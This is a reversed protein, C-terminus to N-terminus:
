GINEDFSGTKIWEEDFYDSEFRRMLKFCHLFKKFIKVFTIRFMATPLFILFLITHDINGDSYHFLKHNPNITESSYEISPIQNFFM